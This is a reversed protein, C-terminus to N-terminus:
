TVLSEATGTALAAVAILLALAIAAATLDLGVTYFSLDTGLRGDRHMAYLDALLVHRVGLYGTGVVTVLMVAAHSRAAAWPDARLREA